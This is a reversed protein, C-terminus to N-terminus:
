SELLNTVAANADRVAAAGDKEGAVCREFERSAVRLADLIKPHPQLPKCRDAMEAAKQLKANGENVGPTDDRASLLGIDIANLYSTAGPASTLYKIYEWAADKNESKAAVTLYGFDSLLTQGAPGPPPFAIDWDFDVKKSAELISVFDIQEHLIAVRGAEFLARYGEFDYQGPKPALGDQFMTALVDWAAAAEPTDLAGATADDNFIDAGAGRIYPLWDQYAFDKYSTVMGFGFVDGRRAARAAAVMSDYSEDWDSANAQALLDRNVFIPYHAGVWPVGYVRGEFTGGEWLTESIHMREAQYDPAEVYETLDALAGAEAFKPYVAITLYVIDPPRDGAFATTLQTEMTGWDYFRRRLDLQPHERAFRDSVRGILQLEDDRFPGKVLSLTGSLPGDQAPAGGGDGGCAQLAGVGSLAIGAAATRQLLRRRSLRRDGRMPASGETM